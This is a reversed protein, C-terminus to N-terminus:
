ACTTIGMSEMLSEFEGRGGNPDIGQSVMSNLQEQQAIRDARRLEGECSLDELAAHVRGEVCEGAVLRNCLATYNYEFVSQLKSFSGANGRLEYWGTAKGALYVARHSWSHASPDDSYRCAEKWAEQLRPLGLDSPRGRCQSIIAGINPWQYDRDGEAILSKVREFGRMISQKDYRGIESSWERKARVEDEDTRFAAQYRGPYVAKLRHFFYTVRLVSDGAASAQRYAGDPPLQTSGRHESLDQAVVQAVDGLLKM